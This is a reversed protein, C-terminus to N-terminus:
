VWKMLLPRLWVLSNRRWDTLLKGKFSLYTISKLLVKQQIQLFERYM